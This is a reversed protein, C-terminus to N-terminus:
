HNLFNIYILLILQKVSFSIYLFILVHVLCFIDLLQSEVTFTYPVYMIM